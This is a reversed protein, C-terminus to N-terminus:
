RQPMIRERAAAQRPNEGARLEFGASANDTAASAPATASASAAASDHSQSPTQSLGAIRQCIGEDPTKPSLALIVHDPTDVERYMLEGDDKLVCGIWVYGAQGARINYRTVPSSRTDVGTIRAARDFYVLMLPEHTRADVWDTSAIPEISDPKLAQPRLRAIRAEEPDIRLFTQGFETPQLSRVLDGQTRNLDIVFTYDPNIQPRLLDAISPAGQLDGAVYPFSLKFASLAQPERATKLDPEVFSVQSRIVWQPHNEVPAAPPECASLILLAAAALLLRRAHGSPKPRM